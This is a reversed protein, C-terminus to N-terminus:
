RVPQTPNTHEDEMYEVLANELSAMERGIDRAKLQAFQQAESLKDLRKVAVAVKPDTSGLAKCWIQENLQKM